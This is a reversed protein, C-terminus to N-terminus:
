GAWRTPTQKSQQTWWERLLEGLRYLPGDTMPQPPSSERLQESATEIDMQILHGNGVYADLYRQNTWHTHSRRPRLSYTPKAASISETLMMHSDETCFVRSAAGLCGLYGASREMSYFSQYAIFTPDFADKLLHEAPVGTRRSTVVLWRIGQHSAADQLFEALQRWDQEDYTYGGGDGGILLTWLQEEGPCHKQRFTEGAQAAEDPLVPVPTMPWRLFPEGERDDLWTIVKSFHHPALRRIDGIFINAVNLSRALWANAYLTNGGASIILDPRDTPLTDISYFWSLRAPDWGTQTGNLLWTLSRRHGNFRMRLNIWDTTVDFSNELSRVM